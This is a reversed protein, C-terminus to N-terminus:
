INGRSIIDKWELVRNAYELGIESNPRGSNYRSLAAKIDGQETKLCWELHKIGYSIHEQIDNKYQDHWEDNLQFYGYDSSGNNNYNVANKRFKSEEIVLALVLVYDINKNIAENVIFLYDNKNPRIGYFCIIEYYDDITYEKEAIEIYCVKVEKYLSSSFVISTFLLVIVYLFIRM